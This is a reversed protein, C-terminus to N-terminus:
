EEKEGEHEGLKLEGEEVSKKNRKDEKKDM